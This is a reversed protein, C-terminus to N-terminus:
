EDKKAAAIAAKFAVSNETGAVGNYDGKMGFWRVDLPGSYNRKFRRSGSVIVTAGNDASTVDKADYFFVGEKGQDNIFYTVATSLTTGSRLSAISITTQSIASVSLFVTLALLTFLKM